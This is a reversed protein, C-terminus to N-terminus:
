DDRVVASRHGCHRNRDFDCVRAFRCLYLLVRAAGDHRRHYVADAVDVLDIRNEPEAGACAVRVLGHLLGAARYAPESARQHPRPRGSDYRADPRNIHHRAAYQHGGRFHHSALPHSTEKLISYDHM